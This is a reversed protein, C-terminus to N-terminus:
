NFFLAGIFIFVIVGVGMGMFFSTTEIVITM